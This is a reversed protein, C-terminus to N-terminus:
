VQSAETVSLEPHQFYQFWEQLEQNELLSFHNLIEEAFAVPAVGCATIM